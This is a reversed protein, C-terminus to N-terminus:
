STKNEDKKEDGSELMETNKIEPLSRGVIGQLDGHIGTINEMLLDISKEEKSWKRRFFEKERDLDNKVQQYYDYMAELRQRFEVSTLYSWLIEKKEHKNVVSSKISALEIITNRLLLGLGLISDFNGIWVGDKQTFNKVGAPLVQSIIVAIQAKVQRQDEKLKAVWGDTWSRTRKLEWIITGCERGSSNKVVQLLDAGKVGKPVERLEDYPFDSKLINELELELVEGQLQQSGQQAKQKLEEIQKLLDSEKKEHELNKMRNEDMAKKFSEAAIKAREEDITRQTKLELEKKEEELRVREKRIELEVKRSEDLKKNKEELEEKLVKMEESSKEGIRTEAAALAKKWMIQKQEREFERSVEEKIQHKLAETAPFSKKCHPCIIQDDM